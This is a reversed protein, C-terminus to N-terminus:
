MPRNGSIKAAKDILEGVRDEVDCLPGYVLIAGIEDYLTVYVCCDRSMTYRISYGGPLREPANWLSTLRGKTNPTM